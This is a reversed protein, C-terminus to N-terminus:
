RAPFRRTLAFAGDVAIKALGIRYGLGMLRRIANRANVRSFFPLSLAQGSQESIIAFIVRYAQNAPREKPEVLHRHSRPLRRRVESRFAQTSAFLEGSVVGQAFLHSLVSSAGYRKVHILDRQLTFLDCFEIADSM